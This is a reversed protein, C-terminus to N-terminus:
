YQQLDRYISRASFLGTRQWCNIINEAKYKNYEVWENKEIIEIRIIVNFVDPYSRKEKKAIPTFVFQRQLTSKGMVIMPVIPAQSISDAEFLMNEVERFVKYRDERLKAGESFVEVVLNIDRISAPKGGENYFGLSLFVCEYELSDIGTDEFVIGFKAQKGAIVELDSVFNISIFTWVGIVLSIVAIYDGWHKKFHNM